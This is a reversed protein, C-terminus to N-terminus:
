VSQVYSMILVSIQIDHSSSLDRLSLKKLKGHLHVPQTDDMYIIHEYLLQNSNSSTCPLKQNTGYLGNNLDALVHVIGLLPVICEIRTSGHKM